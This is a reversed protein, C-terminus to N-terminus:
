DAARQYEFVLVDERYSVVRCSADRQPAQGYLTVRLDGNSIAGAVPYGIAGCVASFVYATGSYDAGNRVGEFLLTGVEVPLADRPSVYRFERRNGEAVLGVVSGNHGWLSGIRNTLPEGLPAAQLPTDLVGRDPCPSGNLYGDQIAAVRMAAPPHRSSGTPSLIQTVAAVVSELTFHQYLLGYDPFDNANDHLLRM